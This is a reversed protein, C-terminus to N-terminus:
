FGLPAQGRGLAPELSSVRVGLLRVRRDLRVRALCERAAALILAPDCTAEALSRDRTLTQFDAYPLEQSAAHQLLAELREGSKLLRLKRLHEALRELQAPSTMPSPADLRTHAKAAM